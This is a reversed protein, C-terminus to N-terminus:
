VLGTLLQNWYISSFQPSILGNNIVHCAENDAGFVIGLCGKWANLCHDHCMYLTYSDLIRQKDIGKGHICHLGGLNMTTHPFQWSQDLGSFSLGEAQRCELPLHIMEFIAKMVSMTCWAKSFIVQEQVSITYQHLTEISEAQSNRVCDGISIQFITAQWNSLSLNVQGVFIQPTLEFNRDHKIMM